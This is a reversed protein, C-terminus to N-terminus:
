VRRCGSRRTRRRCVCPQTRTRAPRRSPRCASATTACSPRAARADHCRAQAPPQLERLALPRQSASEVQHLPREIRQLREVGVQVERSSPTTQRRIRADVDVAISCRAAGRSASRDSRRGTAAARVAHRAAPDCASAADHRDSRALCRCRRDTLRSAVTLAQPPTM